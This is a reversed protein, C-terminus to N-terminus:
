FLSCQRLASSAIVVSVEYIGDSNVDVPQEYDKATAFTLVGKTSIKFLHADNGSLAFKPAKGLATDSPSITTILTSNEAVPKLTLQPFTGTVALLNLNSGTQDYLKVTLDTFDYLSVLDISNEIALSNGLTPADANKYVAIKSIGGHFQEGYRWSNGIWVTDDDQTYLDKFEGMFDLFGADSKADLVGDVYLSIASGDFVVSVKHIMGDRLNTNGVLDLDQGVFYPVYGANRGSDILLGFRGGSNGKAGWEIVSGFYGGHGAQTTLYDVQIWADVRRQNNGVPLNEDSGTLYQGSKEFLLSGM